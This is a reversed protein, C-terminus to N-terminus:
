LFTIFILVKQGFNIVTFEILYKELHLIISVLLSHQKLIHPSFNKVNKHLCITQVHFIFKLAQLFTRKTYYLKRLFLSQFFTVPAPKSAQKQIFLDLFAAMAGFHTGTIYKSAAQNSESNLSELEEFPQSISLDKPEIKQCQTPLPALKLYETLNPM